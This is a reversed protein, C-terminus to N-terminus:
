DKIGKIKKIKDFIIDRLTKDTYNFNGYVKYDDSFLTICYYITGKSSVEIESKFLIMPKKLLSIPYYHNNIDKLNFYKQFM